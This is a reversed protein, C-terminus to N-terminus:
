VRMDIMTGSTPYVLSELSPSSMDMSETLAETQLTDEASSNDSVAATNSSTSKMFPTLDVEDMNEPDNLNFVPYGAMAYVEGNNPNMVIVGINEAAAGERAFDKYKEYFLKIHKEVISQVNIDLSTVLTRGDKAPQISDEMVDDDNLYSYSRGNIGNLTDNYYGELGYFGVNNGQVFGVVDCALSDYPYKRTYDEEFWVGNITGVKEDASVSAAM